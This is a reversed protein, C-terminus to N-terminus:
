CQTRQGIGRTESGRRLSPAVSPKDRLETDQTRNATRRIGTFCATDPLPLPAEKDEGRWPPLLSVTRQCYFALVTDIAALIPATYITHITRCDQASIATKAARLGVAM